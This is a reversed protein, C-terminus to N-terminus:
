PGHERPKQILTSWAYVELIRSWATFQLLRYIIQAFVTFYKKNVSCQM